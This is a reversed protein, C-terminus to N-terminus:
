RKVFRTVQGTAGHGMYLLYMGTALQSVSIFNEGRKLEGSTVEVGQIDLIRFSTLKGSVNTLTLIDTAPNPAITVADSASIQNTGLPNYNGYNIVEEMTLARNYFRLEDMVGKYHYTNSTNDTKGLFIDLNNASNYSISYARNMLTGNIYQYLSDGKQMFVLDRWTNSTAYPPTSIKGTTYATGQHVKDIHIGQHITDVVPTSCNNGGTYYSDDFIVLLGYSGNLSTGKTLLSNGHCPGTFYGMPKVKMCITFDGTFNVGANASLQMYSNSGNFYYASNPANDQSFTLAAGSNFLHRNNGSVDLTNGTFPYYALLGNSLTGQATAVTGSFLGFALLLTSFKM